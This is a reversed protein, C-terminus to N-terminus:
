SETAKDLLLCLRRPRPHPTIKIHVPMQFSLFAIESISLELPPVAGTVM